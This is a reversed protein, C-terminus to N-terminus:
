DWNEFDSPTESAINELPYPKKLSLLIKEAERFMDPNVFFRALVMSTDDSWMKRAAFQIM